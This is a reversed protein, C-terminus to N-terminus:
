QLDEQKFLKIIIQIHGVIMVYMDYKDIRKINRHFINKLDKKNKRLIFEPNIIRKIYEDTMLSVLPFGSLSIKNDVIKKTPIYSKKHLLSKVEINNNRLQEVDPRLNEISYSICNDNIDFNCKLLAQRLGLNKSIFILFIYFSYFFNM